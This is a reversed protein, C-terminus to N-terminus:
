KLVGGFEEKSFPRCLTCTLLRHLFQIVYQILAVSYTSYKTWLFSIADEYVEGNKILFDLIKM